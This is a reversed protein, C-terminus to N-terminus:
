PHSQPWTLSKAAQVAPSAQRRDIWGGRVGAPAGSPAIAPEQRCTAVAGLSGELLSAQAPLKM